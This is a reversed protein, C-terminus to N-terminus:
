MGPNEPPSPRFERRRPTSFVSEDVGLMRLVTRAAEPLPTLKRGLSQGAFSVHVITVTAFPIMATETTPKATPKGLRDPITEGKEALQRRLEFQLYNRVMLALVFVVGLAAIRRPTHLFVPAVTAVNKLWRFGTHGELVHQHRYEALIREDPWAERDLHDTVLVFHRSHFELNAVAEESPTLPESEVLRYVTARPAEEGAKPRGRRARKLTVVESRVEVHAVHYQLKSTLKEMVHVADAECAYTRKSASALSKAFTEREKSLRRELAKEEQDELQTSEVVLFRLSVERKNNGSLDTVTFPREFSRGRYVRPPDAKTRGDARALEPMTEGARRVEDVLEARLAFSHSVLSVFHFQQDLLQGVTPGDVLKSDGVITVDHEEPLLDALAEIHIRNAVPDATNGAFMTGVLPIGVAGHLSIGFVLQKLDPRHDKSYGYAPVPGDEPKASAYAGFLTLSTTDQHVTYTRPADERTIYDKVVASLLEETGRDAIHDLCAALRADNFHAANVGEGLLLEVDTRALWREMDYLAVRGELINLIMATICEGDSVRSRPDPPMLEDVIAPIRLQDIVARVLPLHAVPKPVLDLDASHPLSM